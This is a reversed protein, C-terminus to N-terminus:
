SVIAHSRPRRRADRREADLRRVREAAAALAAPDLPGGPGRATTACLWQAAATVSTVFRVPFRPRALLMLGELIPQYIHANSALLAVAFGSVYPGVVEIADVIKRRVELPPPGVSAEILALYVIEGGCSEVTYPARRVVADIVAPTIHPGRWDSITVNGITGSCLDASVRMVALDHTACGAARGRAARDRMFPSQPPTFRTPRAPLGANPACDDSLWRSVRRRARTLRSRVTKRDHDVLRALASLPMEGGHHLALLDRSEDDLHNLARRLRALRGGTDTDEREPGGQVDARQDADCDLVELRHGARRRYGAAIRRCIERLWLDPREITSLAGRKGQVVLFVEQCLDPLDAERVGLDALRRRVYPAFRAYTSAPTMVDDVSRRDAGGRFGGARV